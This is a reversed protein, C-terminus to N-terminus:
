KQKTVYPFKYRSKIGRKNVITIILVVFELCQANTDFPGFPQVSNFIHRM